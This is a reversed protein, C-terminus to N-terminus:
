TAESFRPWGQNMHYVYLNTRQERVKPNLHLAVDADYASETFSVCNGARIKWVPVNLEHQLIYSLWYDDVLAFEDQAFEFLAVARLVSRSILCNDAHLFHVRQPPDYEDFFRVNAHERWTRDPDEGDLKHPLFKHGRVCLVVEDGYQRRADMFHSIYNEEPLVDDDCILLTDSKMLAPMALRISCYYNETSHICKLNLNGGFRSAIDDIEDRLDYNNNWVIVEFTGEFDQGAFRSLIDPLYQTRRYSCICVTVDFNRFETRQTNPTPLSRYIATNALATVFAEGTISDRIPHQALYKQGLRLANDDQLLREADELTRYYLPYERGLYEVAGGVPNVLVPTARAICEVITTVSVADFLNLFVVSTALLREYEENPVRPTVTVSGNRRLQSLHPNDDPVCLLIKNYRAVHLDYFAQYNRLYKGISLLRREGRLYDEIDFRGEYPPAPYIVRNVPVGVNWSELFDTVYSSLTWLGLCNGISEKWAPLQILRYLDPYAYSTKPVQHVFGVWPETITENNFFVQEVATLLRVGDPVHFENTIMCVVWEWGGCHHDWSVPDVVHLKRTLSPVGPRLKDQVITSLMRTQEKVEVSVIVSAGDGASTSILM